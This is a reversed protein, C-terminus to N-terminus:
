EEYKTWVTVLLACALAALMAQALVSVLDTGFALDILAGPLLLGGLSIGAVQCAALLTGHKDQVDGGGAARLARRLVGASETSLWV